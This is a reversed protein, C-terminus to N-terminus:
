SRQLPAEEAAMEAVASAYSLMRAIYPGYSLHFEDFEDSLEEMKRTGKIRFSNFCNFFLLCNLLLEFIGFNNDDIPVDPRLADDDSLPRTHPKMCGFLDLLKNKRASIEVWQVFSNLLTLTRDRYEFM